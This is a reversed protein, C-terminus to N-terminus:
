EEIVEPEQGAEELRKREEEEAREKELRQLEEQEIAIL